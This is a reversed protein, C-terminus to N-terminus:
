VSEVTAALQLKAREANIEGLIVKIKRWTAPWSALFVVNNIRGPKTDHKEVLKQLDRGHQTLKQLPVKWQELRNTIDKSQGSARILDYFRGIVANLAQIDDLVKGYENPANRGHSIYRTCTEIIKKSVEALTVISAIVGVVEAM